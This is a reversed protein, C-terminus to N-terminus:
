SARCVSAGETRCGRSSRGRELDHYLFHNKFASDFNNLVIQSIQFGIITEPLAWDQWFEVSPGEPTGADAHM